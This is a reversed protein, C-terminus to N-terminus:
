RGNEYLAIGSAEAFSRWLDCCLEISYFAGAHHLITDFCHVSTHRTKCRCTISLSSINSGVMCSNIIHLINATQGNFNVRNGFIIHPIHYSYLETHKCTPAHLKPVLQTCFANPVSRLCASCYVAISFCM